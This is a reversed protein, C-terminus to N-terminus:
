GELYEYVENNITIYYGDDVQKVRQIEITPEPDQLIEKGLGIILFIMIVSISIFIFIGWLGYDEFIDIM